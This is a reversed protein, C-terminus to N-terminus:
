NKGGCKHPLKIGINYHFFYIEVLKKLSMAYSWLVIYPYFRSEFGARKLKLSTSNIVTCDVLAM